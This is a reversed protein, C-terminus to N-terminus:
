SCFPNKAVLSDTGKELDLKGRGSTSDVDISLGAHLLDYRSAKILFLRVVGYTPPTSCNSSQRDYQSVARLLVTHGVVVILVM